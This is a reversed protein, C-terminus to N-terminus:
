QINIEIKGEDILDGSQYYKFELHWLGSMIFNLNSFLYTGTDLQPLELRTPASGHNMSPMWLILKFDNNSQIPLSEIVASGDYKNPRFSKIVLKTPKGVVIDERWILQLCSGIKNLTVDCNFSFESIKNQASNGQLNVYNPRACGSIFIITLFFKLKGFM